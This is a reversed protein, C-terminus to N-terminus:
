ASPPPRLVLLRPETMELIADRVGERGQGSDKVGGYPMHDVRWSPVDGVVVGGVQLRDWARLAKPWDRTFVGSQLGFRSRDAAALAEEFTDYPALLAVPGFAEDACLPEDEPVGEVVTPELLAGHRAGGCLVRAGRAVASAIWAELRRAEKEAILPGVVVREDQPDGFALARAAAVFRERFGAYRERQVLIRQTKICSQGSQGFAGAICRAVADDLDWDPEVIAAANGGLELVVKKRGARRKLEWGVEPSGTFSLLAAREDTTFREAADRPCPLISWSGRPLETEALVEGMLLASIPTWSAPKLVFPCGAAIAPAVKHAALNLPFNFPSIFSCVGVPVRKVFGSLGVGRPSADLPVIEGTIRTSEAAALRFTDVLRAVETRADRVPKGAEVRLVHALEGAREEFRAAAHQLIDRRRHAPLAAMAPMAARAAAFAADIDADDAQAVRSVVAGDHKDHVALDLNKQVPQSALWFPYSARIM